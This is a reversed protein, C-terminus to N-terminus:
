KKGNSCTETNQRDPFRPYRRRGGRKCVACHYWSQEILRILVRILAKRIDALRRLGGLSCAAAATCRHFFALDVRLLATHSKGREDHSKHQRMAPRRGHFLGAAGRRQAPMGEMIGQRGMTCSRRIPWEIWHSETDKGLLLRKYNQV